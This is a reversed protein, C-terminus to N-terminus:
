TEAGYFYYACNKMKGSKETKKNEIWVTWQMMISGLQTYQLLNSKDASRKMMDTAIKESNISFTKWEEAYKKKGVSLFNM